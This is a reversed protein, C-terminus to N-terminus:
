ELKLLCTTFYIRKTFSVKALYHLKSIMNQPAERTARHFSGAQWHLPCSKLGQDLFIWMGQSLQPWISRGNFRHQLARSSRSSLGRAGAGAAQAVQTLVWERCHSAVEILLEQVCSSFLRREGCNSFVQVADFVWCLWLYFELFFFSFKKLFWM